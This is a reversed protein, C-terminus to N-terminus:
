TSIAHTVLSPVHSESWRHLRVLANLQEDDLRVYSVYTLGNKSEKCVPCKKMSKKADVLKKLFIKPRTKDPDLGSAYIILLCCVDSSTIYSNFASYM